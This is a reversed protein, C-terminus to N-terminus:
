CTCLYRNIVRFDPMWLEWQKFMSTKVGNYDVPNWVAMEDKWTQSTMGYNSVHPHLVNASVSDRECECVSVM